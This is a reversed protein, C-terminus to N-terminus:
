VPEAESEAPAAPRGAPERNVVTQGGPGQQAARRWVGRTDVVIKGALQEPKIAYFPRHDVLMVIVDAALAADIDVKRVGHAGDLEHPLRDVFPEVLLLEIEPRTLELESSLYEVIEVAPSERLDGIDPKYALGLCAISGVPRGAIKGLIERVVTRPRGSNIWRAERILRAQDGLASVIFWPDVAICHGGVGPGPNLINVRPHRNALSILEWVDISFDGCIEALENAFAINVDRFSNESLKCLEATRSDTVFCNGTVFSQYFALGARGAAACVGGIIRDNEVLEKLMQGPLVREPCHAVLIDPTRASGRRSCALDPRATEIWRAVQETAGVPITSEVIVLDGKRLVPAISRAAAAVYSLDPKYGGTFPTPVAIVFVDGAVPESRASIRGAAVLDALAEPLGPEEITCAGANVAAVIRPNIDVGVVRIGARAAVVATPLGIYGLGVIVCTEFGNEFRPRTTM